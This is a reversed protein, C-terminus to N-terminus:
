FLVEKSRRLTNIRIALWDIGVLLGRGFVKFRMLMRRNKSSSRLRPGLVRASKVLAMPTVGGVLELMM